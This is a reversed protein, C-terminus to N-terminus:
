NNKAIRREMCIFPRVGMLRNSTNRDCEHCYMKRETPRTINAYTHVRNVHNEREPRRYRFTAIGSSNYCHFPISEVWEVRYRSGSRDLRHRARALPVVVLTHYERPSKYVAIADTTLTVLTTVIQDTILHSRCSNIGISLSYALRKHKPVLLPILDVM